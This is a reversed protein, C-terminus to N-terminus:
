TELNNNKVKIKIINRNSATFVLKRSIELFNAASKPLILFYSFDLIAGFYIHQLVVAAM